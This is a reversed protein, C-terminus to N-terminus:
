KNGQYCDVNTKGENMAKLMIFKDQSKSVLGNYTSKPRAKELSWDLLINNVQELENEYEEDHQLEVDNEESSESNQTKEEEESTKSENRLEEITCLKSKQMLAMNHESSRM